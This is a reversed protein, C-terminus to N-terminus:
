VLSRFWKTLCRKKKLVWSQELVPEADSHVRASEDRGAKGINQNHCNGESSLKLQSAVRYYIIDTRRFRQPSVLNERSRIWIFKM